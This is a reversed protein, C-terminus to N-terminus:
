IREYFWTPSQGGKVSFIFANLEYNNSDLYPLHHPPKNIDIRQPDPVILDILEGGDPLILAM